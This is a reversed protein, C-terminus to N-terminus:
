KLLSLVTEQNQHAQAESSRVLNKAIINGTQEAFVHAEESNEINQETIVLKDYENRLNKMSDNFTTDFVKVRARVESIEKLSKELVRMADKIRQETQIDIEQLSKFGSVNETDVGLHSTHISALSLLEIHPEPIVVRFQFGNQIVSVSGAM